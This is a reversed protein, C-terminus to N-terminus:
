AGFRVRDDPLNAIFSNLDSARCKRNRGIYVTRIDGAQWLEYTKTRSLGLEEACEELSLLRDLSTRGDATM